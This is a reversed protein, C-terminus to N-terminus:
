FTNLFGINTKESRYWGGCWARVDGFGFFPFLFTSRVHVFRLVLMAAVVAGQGVRVAAVVVGDQGGILRFWLLHGVESSDDVVFCLEDDGVELM